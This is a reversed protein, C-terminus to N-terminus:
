IFLTRSGTNLRMTVLQLANSSQIFKYFHWFKEVSIKVFKVESFDCFDRGLDHYTDNKPDSLHQHCGRNTVM